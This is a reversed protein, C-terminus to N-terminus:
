SFSNGSGDLHAPVCLGGRDAGGPVGVRDWGPYGTVPDAEDSREPYAVPLDV